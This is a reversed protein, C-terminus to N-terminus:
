LISRALREGNGQPYAVKWPTPHGKSTTRDADGNLRSLPHIANSGTHPYNAKEAHGGTHWAEGHLSPPEM